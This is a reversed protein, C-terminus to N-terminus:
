LQPQLCVRSTTQAIVAELVADIDEFQEAGNATCRAVFTDIEDSLEARETKPHSCSVPSPDKGVLLYYLTAGISYIDNARKSLGRFQDVSM